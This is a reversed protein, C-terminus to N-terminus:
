CCTLRSRTPSSITHIQTHSLSLSLSDSTHIMLLGQLNRTLSTSSPSSAVSMVSALDSTRHLADEDAFGSTPADHINVSSSQGLSLLSGLQAASSMKPKSIGNNEQEPPAPLNLDISFVKVHHTAVTDPIMSRAFFSLHLGINTGVVCAMASAATRPVGSGLAM